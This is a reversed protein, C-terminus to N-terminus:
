ISHITECVLKTTLDLETETKIYTTGTGTGTYILQSAIRPM